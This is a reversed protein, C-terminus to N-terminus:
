HGLLVKNLKSTIENFLRTRLGSYRYQAVTHPRTIAKLKIASVINLVRCELKLLSISAECGQLEVTTHHKITNSKFKIIIIATNLQHVEM